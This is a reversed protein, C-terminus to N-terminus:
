NVDTNSNLDHFAQLITWFHWIVLAILLIDCLWSHMTVKCAKLETLKDNVRLQKCESHDRLLRTMKRWGERMRDSLWQKNTESWSTSESEAHDSLIWTKLYSMIIVVVSEHKSTFHAPSRWSAKDWLYQTSEFSKEDSETNSNMQARLQFHVWDQYILSSSNVHVQSFLEFYLWKINFEIDSKLKQHKTKDFTDHKFARIEFKVCHDDFSSRLVKILKRM